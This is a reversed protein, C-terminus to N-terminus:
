LPWCRQDVTQLVSQTIPKSQRSDTHDGSGWLQISNCYFSCQVQLCMRRMDVTKSERTLRELCVEMISPIYADIRGQCQIVVVELLKCANTQVDEGCGTTLVKKCMTVVIELHKPNSLFVDTDVRVYNYIVGMMEPRLSIMLYLCYFIELFSPLLLPPVQSSTSDTEASPTTSSPSSNGCKLLSLPR